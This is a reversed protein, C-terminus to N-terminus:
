SIETSCLKRLSYKRKKTKLLFNHPAEFFGEPLSKGLLIITATQDNRKTLSLLPIM